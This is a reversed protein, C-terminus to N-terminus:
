RWFMFVSAVILSRMRVTFGSPSTTEPMVANAVGPCVGPCVETCIADTRVLKETTCVNNPVASDGELVGVPAAPEVQIEVLARLRASGEQISTRTLLDHDRGVAEREGSNAMDNAGACREAEL